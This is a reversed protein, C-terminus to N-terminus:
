GSATNASSAGVVPVSGDVVVDVGTVVTGVDVVGLGVVEAGVSVVDVVDVGDAAM